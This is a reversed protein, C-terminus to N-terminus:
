YRLIDNVIMSDKKLREFRQGSQHDTKVTPKTTALDEFSSGMNVHKLLKKKKTPTFYKAVM